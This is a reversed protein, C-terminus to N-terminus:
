LLNFATDYGVTANKVLEVYSFEPCVADTPDELTVVLRVTAAPKEVKNKDTAAPISSILQVRHSESM